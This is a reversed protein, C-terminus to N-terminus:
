GRTEAANRQRYVSPSEGAQKAFARSFYSPTSFGLERSVQDITLTPDTLMRKAQWIKLENFYSIIGCGFARRFEEKMRTPSHGLERAIQAITLQDKVRTLLLHRIQQAIEPSTSTTSVKGGLMENVQGLLLLLAGTLALPERPQEATLHDAATWYSRHLEPNGSTRFRHVGSIRSQLERCCRDVGAATPWSGVRTTDLLLGLTAATSRGENRWHHRVDSAILCFVGAELEITEDPTVLSLRGQICGHLAPCPHRHPQTQTGAPIHGSAFNLFPRPTARLYALYSRDELLPADYALKKVVDDATRPMYTPATRRMRIGRCAILLLLGGAEGGFVGAVTRIDLLSPNGAM